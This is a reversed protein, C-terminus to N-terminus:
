ESRWLETRTLEEAVVRLVVNSNQLLRREADKQAEEFTEFASGNIWVNPLGFRQVRFKM